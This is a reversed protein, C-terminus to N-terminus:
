AAKTKLSSLDIFVQGSRLEIPFCLVSGAGEELAEGSKLDIVLNHLPCTVCGDHVIGESLPGGKHPCKDEIAYVENGHTRFVAVKTDAVIIRRSGRLPIDEVACLDTWNELSTM